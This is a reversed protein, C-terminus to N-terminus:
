DRIMKIHEIDDEIYVEGVAQFGYGEYFKKLYLQAGIKLPAGPFLESCRKVSEEMLMRGYGERRLAPESVVRGISAYGPYSLGVPLLRSYAALTGKDDYGMLHWSEQDQDDCDVFACRQELVFVRQRLRMFAYLEDLSLDRYHKLTFHMPLITDTQDLYINKGM